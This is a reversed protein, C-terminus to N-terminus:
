KSFFIQLFMRNYIEQKKLFFNLDGCNGVIHFHKYNEGKM